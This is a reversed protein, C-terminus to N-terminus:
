WECFVFVPQNVTQPFRLCVGLRFYRMLNPKNWKGSNGRLAQFWSSDASYYGNEDGSGGTGRLRPPGQCSCLHSQVSIIQNALNRSAPKMRSFIWQNIEVTMQTARALLSALCTPSRVASRHGFPFLLFLSKAESRSM